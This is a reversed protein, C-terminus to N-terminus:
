VPNHTFTLFATNYTQKCIKYAAECTELHDFLGFVSPGSGSMRAGRAGLSLLQQRITEIEPYRAVTVCELVNGMKEYFDSFQNAKILAAMGSIDPHHLIADLKLNEYVWPTSVTFDPVVILVPTKPFPSIPTLIEGIGTAVATGKLICFPVDAGVKAGLELLKATSLPRGFIENLGFFVAAADASGGALGACLPIQKDIVINVGAHINAAELFLTAAIHALNKEGQPVDARNECTVRVTIDAYDPRIYVRDCLEVTQMLMHVNHYGDLRKSLVDLSLNIKAYAKFQYKM